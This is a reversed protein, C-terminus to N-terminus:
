FLEPPSAEHVETVNKEYIHVVKWSRLHLFSAIFRRHCNTWRLEACMLASLRSEARGILIDMADRFEKTKMYEEYGETRYGGLDRIRMYEINDTRIERIAERNFQPNRRSRPFHRVDVLLEIEHKKLVHVFEDPERNSHGITYILNTEM